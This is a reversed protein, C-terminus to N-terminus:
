FKYFHHALELAEDEAGFAVVQKGAPCSIM